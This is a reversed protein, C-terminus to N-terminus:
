MRRVAGISVMEQLFAKLDQAVAEPEGAYERLIARRLEAETSPRDLSAWVFAGVENLTYLCEMDAVDQHIPVLVAEDVIRRFIYDSNREYLAEQESL